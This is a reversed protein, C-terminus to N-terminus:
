IIAIIHIIIETIKTKIDTKGVLSNLAKLVPDMGTKDVTGPM